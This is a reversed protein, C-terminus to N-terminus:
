RFNFRNQYVALEQYIVKQVRENVLITYPNSRRFRNVLSRKTLIVCKLYVVYKTLKSIIIIKIINIIFIINVKEQVM